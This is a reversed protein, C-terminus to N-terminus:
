KAGWAEMALANPYNSIAKSAIFWMARRIANQRAQSDRARMFHSKRTIDHLHPYRTIAHEGNSDRALSVDRSIEQWDDRKILTSMIKLAVDINTNPNM